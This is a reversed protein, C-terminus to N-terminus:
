VELYTELAFHHLPITTADSAFPVFSILSTGRAAQAAYPVSHNPETFSPISSMWNRKILNFLLQRLFKLLLALQKGNPKSKKKIRIALSDTKKNKKTQKKTPFIIFFAVKSTYLFRCLPKL